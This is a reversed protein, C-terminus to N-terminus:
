GQSPSRESSTPPPLECQGLRWDNDPLHLGHRRWGSSTQNKNVAQERNTFAAEGDSSLSRGQLLRSLTATANISDVQDSWRLPARKVMAQKM